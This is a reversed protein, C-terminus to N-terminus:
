PFVASMLIRKFPYFVPSGPFESRLLNKFQSTFSQLQHGSLREVYPLLATGSVWDYLKGADDTILPYIKEFVNIKTGGLRYLISAYDSIDLVPSVRNWQQLSETFEEGSALEALLQNTRNHYQAPIQIVIQGDKKLCTAMQALLTSHDPVWQIAAHSFVLDWKNEETLAQQITKLEFRLEHTAVNTMYATDSQFTDVFQQSEKLMHESSDIGYILKPDPLFDPLKATLEGTGCGLDIVEM